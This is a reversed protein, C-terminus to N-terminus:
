YRAQSVLECFKNLDINGGSVIAVIPGKGVKRSLAAALPLAGAGESIIRAKEAMFRMANKTEELTVVLYGDVVPKMREWMRPFMSQGGAGDVFSAKWNPFNQPSGKEFSLAAPAATEPEVGFVKIEPKLAKIASGVGTILGGGGISAIVAAADPADELIELGMTGHGAIFNDDDFPHIFTGEARPFSREDLAKWAIEYPVPILKAGLAKMRELKSKPATEVVVVTCPVAAARAAYAVGQGANGASITWVGREREEESLMAVANAAGRLKYANIPQLNELKLRIDPFEAGLELRILPTRVITKGIRERAEQIESLQISRVPELIM